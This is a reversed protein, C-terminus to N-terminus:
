FKTSTGGVSLINRCSSIPKVKEKRGEKKEQKEEEKQKDQPIREETPLRKTPLMNASM